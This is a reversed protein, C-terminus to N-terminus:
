KYSEQQISVARLEGWTSVWGQALLKWAGPLVTHFFSGVRSFTILLQSSYENIKSVQSKKSYFDTKLIKLFPNHLIQMQKIHVVIRCTAQFTAM